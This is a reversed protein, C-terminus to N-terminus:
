ASEAEPRYPSQTLGGSQYILSYSLLRIGENKRYGQVKFEAGTMDALQGLADELEIEDADVSIIRYQNTYDDTAFSVFYDAYDSQWNSADSRTLINTSAVFDATTGTVLSNEILTYSNTIQIQKYTCRIGGAPFRRVGTIIPTYNWRILPDGWEAEPDGWLIPSNSKIEKLESFIGSNDNNSFISFAVKAIGDAYATIKTVWKRRTVDQFDFAASLYNYVVPYETWEDPTTAEDIKIDNLTGSEHKLLYGRSDGRVLMNEYYCLATPAFNSRWSGGTWTTFPTDPKLGFMLHAVYIEDNDAESDDSTVAFYVRRKVGDYTGYIRKSQTATSVLGSYTVPFEESIRLVQYGDTSYFGDSGAFVCGSGDLIQVVSKHSVCGATRSIETKQLGGAGTSDFFGDVRYTRTSCLVILSNGAVGVGTIEDDFDLTNGENAAYPQGPAAQVLRNPYYADTSDQINLYFLSGNLQAVYKCRPPPDYDLDNGDTYLLLGADLDADVITDNFTTTGNAVEGVKYFTDGADATRYIETVLNASAVDYHEGAANALVRINSLLNPLTGSFTSNGSVSSRMEYDVGNITYSYKWVMRYIRSAAGSSAHTVGIASARPLGMTRMEYDTGDLYIFIPRTRYDNSIILHDSWRAFSSQNFEAVAAVFASDAEPGVIETFASAKVHFLKDQAQYISDGNFRQIADVRTNGVGQPLQYYSDNLVQGGPRSELKLDPRAVLNDARQYRNTRAGIYNDTMGGSFDLVALAQEAM